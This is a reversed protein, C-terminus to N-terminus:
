LKYFILTVQKDSIDQKKCLQIFSKMKGKSIESELKRNEIFNRNIFVYPLSKQHTMEKLVLRMTISNVEIIKPDASISHLQSKVRLSKPCGLKSYVVILHNNIEAEIENALNKKENSGYCVGM